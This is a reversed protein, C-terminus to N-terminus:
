ACGQKIKKMKLQARNPHAPNVILERRQPDILVDMEGLPIAGLLSEPDGPLVFANCTATRNAFKVMLPGAADYEVVDGSAPQAPRKEVFPLGLQLQITENIAMLYAGSDVLVTHRMRRVEEEGLDEANILEIGAYVLGM